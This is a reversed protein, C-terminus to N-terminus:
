VDIIVLRAMVQLSESDIVDDKIEFINAVSLDRPNNNVTASLDEACVVLNGLVFILISKFLYTRM